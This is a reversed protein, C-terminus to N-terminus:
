ASTHAHMSAPVSPLTLLVQLLKRSCCTGKGPNEFVVSVTKESQHKVTLVALVFSNTM